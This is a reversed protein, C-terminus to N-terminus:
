FADPAQVCDGLAGARGCRTFVCSRGDAGVAIDGVHWLPNAVGGDGRGLVVRESEFVVVGGCYVRVIAPTPEPGSFYHVGVAFRGGVQARVVNINEPGPLDSTHDVDLQPNNEPGEPPWSLVGDPCLMGVSRDCRCNGFYCDANDGAAGFWRGGSRALDALHLDLDIGGGQANCSRCSRDVNWVLEVRVAEESRAFARTTCTATNGRDNSASLRWVWNGAVDFTFGAVRADPTSLSATSTPPAEVLSWRYTIPRGLRSVASGELRVSSFPVSTVDPPCTVLVDPDVHVNTQCSRAHMAADTVTLRVLYDGLADCLLRADPSGTPPQPAGASGAPRRAVSWAYALPLGLRSSARASLAAVDSQYRSQDAPCVLDIAPDAEVVTTCSDTRGAPDTVTLRLRWTGAASLLLSAAPREANVLASAPGPGSDLTWRYQLPLGLSHTGNGNLAVSRTEVARQSPPCVATVRVPVDVPRPMDVLPPVDVPVVRDIPLPRDTPAVRDIAPPLDVPVVRDIALPLDVAPPLDITPPVDIVPPLDVATVVDLAPSADALEGSLPTRAGCAPLLSWLLVVRRISASVGTPPHYRGPGDGSDGPFDITGGM